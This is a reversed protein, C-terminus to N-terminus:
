AKKKDSKKGAKATKHGKSAKKAHQKPCEGWKYSGNAKPDSIWCKGGSMLSEASYAPGMAFTAGIVLAIAIALNRMEVGEHQRRGQRQDILGGGIRLPACLFSILAAAHACLM